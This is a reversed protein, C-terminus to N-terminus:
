YIKVTVLQTKDGILEPELGLKFLTQYLSFAEKYSDYPYICNKTKVIFKPTTKLM